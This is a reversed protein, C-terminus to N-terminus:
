LMILAVTRDAYQVGPMTKLMHQVEEFIGEKDQGDFGITLYDQMCTFGKASKNAHWQRSGSMLLCIASSRSEM